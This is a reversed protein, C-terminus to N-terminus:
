ELRLAQAPDGRTARVAPILTAVTAVLMLSVALGLFTLPDTAKVGYLLNSMLRTLGFSALLGVLTGAMGLVVGKKLVLTV